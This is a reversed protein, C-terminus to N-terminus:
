RALRAQARSRRERQAARVSTASAGGPNILMAMSTGAPFNTTIGPGTWGNNIDYSVTVASTQGTMNILIGPAFSQEIVSGTNVAQTAFMFYAYEVPVFTDLGQGFLPFAAIPNSTQSTPNYVSVGCTFQTTTNNLVELYGTTGTNTVTGIGGIGVTMEQGLSMPASFAATIQVGNALNTTTSTYGSYNEQWAITNNASIANTSFWVVPVGNAPGDAGQFAYLQYGNQLLTTVSAPDVNIVVSYNTADGNSM